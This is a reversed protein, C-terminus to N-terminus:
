SEGVGLRAALWEVLLPVLEERAERLSHSAGPM